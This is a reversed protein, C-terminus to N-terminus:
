WEYSINIIALLKVAFLLTLCNNRIPIIIERLMDVRMEWIDDKAKATLNVYAVIPIDIANRNM